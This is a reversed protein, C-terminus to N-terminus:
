YIQKTSYYRNNNTNWLDYRYGNYSVGTFIDFNFNVTATYTVIFKNGQFIYVSDNATYASNKDWDRSIKQWGSNPNSGPGGHGSTVKQYYQKIGDYEETYVWNGTVYTQTVDYQPISKLVTPDLEDIKNMVTKERHESWSSCDHEDKTVTNVPGIFEWYPKQDGDGHMGNYGDPAYGDNSPSATKNVLDKICRYYNDKYFVIDNVTYASYPSYVKDIKKWWRATGTPSTSASEDMILQWWSGDCFVFDGKRYIRQDAYEGRNNNTNICEIQKAVTISNDNEEDDGISTNTDDKIYYLKSNQDLQTYTSVNEFYNKSSNTISENINFNVLEFTKSTKYAENNNKKKFYVKMDLRYGNTKFGRVEILLKRNNVYYDDNFVEKSDRYLRGNEVHIVHWSRDDPKTNAVTVDTAYQIEDSIYDMVGDTAQKDLSTKTSTDFYGLSNVLIGGTIVMTLSAIVLVIIIEVLTMGKNNIKKM